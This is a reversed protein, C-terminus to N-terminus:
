TETLEMKEQETIGPIDSQIEAGSVAAAMPGFVLYATLLIIVLKRMM